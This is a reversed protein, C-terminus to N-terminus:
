AAEHEIKIQIGRENTGKEDANDSALEESNPNASLGKGKSLCKITRGKTVTGGTM